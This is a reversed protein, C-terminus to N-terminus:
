PAAKSHMILYNACYIEQRQTDEVSLTDFALASVPLTQAPTQQAPLLFRVRGQFSLPSLLSRSVLPSYLLLHSVRSIGCSIRSYAM